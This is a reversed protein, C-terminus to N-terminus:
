GTPPAVLRGTSAGLVGVGLAVRLKSEVDTAGPALHHHGDGGGVVALGAPDGLRQGGPEGVNGAGEGGALHRLQAAVLDPEGELPVGGEGVGNRGGACRTGIVEGTRQPVELPVVVGHAAGGAERHHEWCESEWCESEWRWASSQNSMRPGQPWTTTVM